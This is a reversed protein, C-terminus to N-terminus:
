RKPPPEFGIEKAWKGLAREVLKTLTDREHDALREAWDKWEESGRVQVVMPKRPTKEPEPTPEPDPKRKPVNSPELLSQM